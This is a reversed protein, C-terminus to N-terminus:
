GAGLRIKRYKQEGHLMLYSWDLWEGIGEDGCASHMGLRRQVGGGHELTRAPQAWMSAEKSNRPSESPMMVTEGPRATSCHSSAGGGQM